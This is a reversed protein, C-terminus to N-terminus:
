RNEADGSRGEGSWRWLSGYDCSKCHCLYDCKLCECDRQCAKLDCEYACTDCDAAMKLQFLALRLQERAAHLERELRSLERVADKVLANGDASKVKLIRLQRILTETDM